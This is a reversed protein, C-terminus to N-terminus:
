SVCCTACMKAEQEKQGVAQLEALEDELAEIEAVRAESVDGRREAVRQQLAELKEAHLQELRQLSDNRELEADRVADELSKKQQFTKLAEEVEPNVCAEEIKQVLQQAELDKHRAEREVAELRQLEEQLALVEAEKERVAAETVSGSRAARMRNLDGQAATLESRVSEMSNRRRPLAGPQGHGANAAGDSQHVSNARASPDPAGAPWIKIALHCRQGKILAGAVETSRAYKALDLSLVDLVQPKRGSEEFVKFLVVCEKFGEGKGKFDAGLTLEQQFEIRNGSRPKSSGISQWHKIPKVRNKLAWQVSYTVPSPAAPAVAEAHDVIIRFENSVRERKRMMWLLSGPAALRFFISV